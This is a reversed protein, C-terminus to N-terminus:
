VSLSTLVKPDGSRLSYLRSIKGRLCQVIFYLLPQIRLAQAVIPLLGTNFDVGDTLPCVLVDNFVHPYTDHSFPHPFIGLSIDGGERKKLHATNRTRHVKKNLFRFTIFTFM